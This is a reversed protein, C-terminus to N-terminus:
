LPTHFCFSNTNSAHWLNFFTAIYENLGKQIVMKKLFQTILQIEKTFNTQDNRQNVHLYTPRIQRKSLHLKINEM